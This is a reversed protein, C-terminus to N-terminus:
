KSHVLNLFEERTKPDDRFVGLMTSTVTKSNIKQVGRMVMCMHVGEIVVAVGAPRVAQTVAIAIQKTLREQVQLRRSFIEVIRALKSLGLIKGQPLYGISVKGYFPVLHHECMSFMEIDKVVVMEDTDEDFIANNLVEELSQDYGKTFFLMAKAAREPTKLLGEREPDEGLGTLLLRYSNAMDPLLAERTPPRHDLELDHHFTCNEHGPTTSTRPTMPTGPVELESDADNIHFNKLAEPAKKYKSVFSGKQVADGNEKEESISNRISRSSVRRILSSPPVIPETNLDKGNLAM